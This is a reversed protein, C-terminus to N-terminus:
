YNENIIVKTLINIYISNVKYYLVNLSAFYLGSSM